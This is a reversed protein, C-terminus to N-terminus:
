LMTINGSMREYYYPNDSLVEEQLLQTHNIEKVMSKLDWSMVGKSDPVVIMEHVSSPLIYLNNQLQESLQPLLGDYFVAAAGNCGKKNTIVYMKPLGSSDFDYEVRKKLMEEMTMVVAPCLLPSNKKAQGFVDERNVDWLKLHENRLTITAEGFSNDNLMYQVIIALNLYRHHVVEKLYEENLEYNVVRFVIRKKVREYDHFFEMDYPEQFSNKSHCVRIGDLLELYSMKGDAYDSYYNELYISPTVNVGKKKILIGHLIKSNLKRSKVALIEYDDGYIARLDVAVKDALAEIDLVKENEDSRLGNGSDSNLDSKLDSGLLSFDASYEGIKRINGM